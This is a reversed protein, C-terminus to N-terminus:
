IARVKIRAAATTTTKSVSAQAIIFEKGVSGNIVAGNAGSSTVQTAGTAIALASAIKLNGDDDPVLFDDKTITQGAALWADIEYDGGKLVPASAKVAYGTDRDLPKFHVPAQEYGLFGSPKCGATGVVIDTDSTGKKVVKGSIMNTANEVNGFEVYPVKGAQVVVIDATM